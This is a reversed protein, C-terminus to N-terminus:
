SATSFRGGLFQELDGLIRTAQSLKAFSGSNALTLGLQGLLQLIIQTLGPVRAHDVAALNPSRCVCCHSGGTGLVLSVAMFSSRITGFCPTLWHFSIGVSCTRPRSNDSRQGLRETCPASFSLM